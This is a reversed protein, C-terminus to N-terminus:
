LIINLGSLFNKRKLCGPSFIRKATSRDRTAPWMPQRNMEVWRTLDRTHHESGEGAVDVSGNHCCAEGHPDHSAVHLVVVVRDLLGVGAVDLGVGSRGVGRRGHGGDVGERRSGRGASRGGAVAGQAPRGGVEATDAVPVPDRGVHIERHVTVVTDGRRHRAVVDQGAARQRAGGRDRHPRRGHIVRRQRLVVGGAGREVGGDLDVDQGVVGALLIRGQRQGQGVRRVAHDRDGGAVLHEVGGVGAVAAGVRERVHHAVRVTVRRARSDRHRDVVGLHDHGAGGVRLAVLRRRQRHEGGDLADADGRRRLGRLVAFPVRFLTVLGVADRTGAAHVDGGPARVAGGGVHLHGGDRGVGARELVHAVTRARSAGEVRLPTHLRDAPVEVHPLQGSAPREHVRHLAPDQPLRVGGRVAEDGDRVVGLVHDAINRQGPHGDLFPHELHRRPRGPAHHDERGLGLHLPLLGHGDLRQDGGLRHRRVLRRWAVGCTRTAM